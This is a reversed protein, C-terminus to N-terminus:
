RRELRDVAQEGRALREGNRLSPQFHAVEVGGLRDARVVLLDDERRRELRPCPRRHLGPKVVGAPFFEAAGVEGVHKALLWVARSELPHLELAYTFDRPGLRFWRPASSASFGFGCLCPSVSFLRLVAASPPRTGAARGCSGIAM